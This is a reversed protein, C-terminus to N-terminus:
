DRFVMQVFGSQLEAEWGSSAKLSHCLISRKKKERSHKDRAPFLFLMGVIKGHVVALCLSSFFTRSGIVRCGVAFLYM